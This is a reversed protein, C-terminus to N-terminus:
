EEQEDQEDLRMVGASLRCVTVVPALGAAETYAGSLSTSVDDIAKKDGYYVSVNRAAMKAATQELNEHVVTM